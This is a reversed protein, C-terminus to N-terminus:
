IYDGSSKVEEPPTIKQLLHLTKLILLHNEEERKRLIEFMDVMENAFKDLGNDLAAVTDELGTIMEKLTTM